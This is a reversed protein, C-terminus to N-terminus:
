RADCRHFPTAHRETIGGTWRRVAALEAFEELQEFGCSVGVVAVSAARHSESLALRAALEGAGFGVLEDFAQLDLDVAVTWGSTRM